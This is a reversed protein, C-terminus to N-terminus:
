GRIFKIISLIVILTIGATLVSIIDSPIFVFAEGLFSGFGTCFELLSTFISLLGKFAGSIAEAVGGFVSSILDGLIGDSGLSSDGSSSSGSDSSGGSAGSDGSSSGGSDGSGSSDEPAEVVYESLDYNSLSTWGFSAYICADVSYWGDTQYQQVDKVVDDELYVYVDGNSPYTARVGGVRLGAVAVNSKVAIQNTTGAAPLVLVLNTDFPQQRPTYTGDYLACNSVRLEDFVVSQKATSNLIISQIPNVDFEYSYKELGNEYYTVTDGSRVFAFSIFQDLTQSYSYLTDILGSVSYYVYDGYWRGYASSYLKSSSGNGKFANYTEYPTDFNIIGVGSGTIVREYNGSVTYKYNESDYTGGDGLCDIMERKAKSETTCPISSDTGILKNNNDLDYIEGTSLVSDSIKIRGEVTFDGTITGPLNILLEHSNSDSWSLASTFDSDIFNYSANTIYEVSNGFSSSDQINGDFHLLALTTGDDEIVEDYNIADYIFYTGWVEEATLDYSNRGDPLLYYIEYYWTSATETETIYYSIYTVNNVIYSNYDEGEIYYTQYSPSFRINNITSYNNIVPNYYVYENNETKNFVSYYNYNNTTNYVYNNQAGSSAAGTGGFHFDGDSSGTTLFRLSSYVNEYDDGRFLVLGASLSAENFDIYRSLFSSYTNSSDNASFSSCPFISFALIIALIFSLNRKFM